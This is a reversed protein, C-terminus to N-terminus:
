EAKIQMLERIIEAQRIFKPDIRDGKKVKRLGDMLVTDKDTLGETVEYLHPMENDISIQRADITGNKVVFVFKKDLVEFTAKQPILLVNPLHLPMLIKGTQGHRLIAKPNQFTARFSINGTENNFDSEITEIIGASEYLGGDALELQVKEKEKRLDHKRIFGLYFAEPVNFYVWMKSNDSLTTLLAGEELLSGQRVENFRGVIGDFPAKIQTFQLHADALMLEAKAKDLNAKALALENKSVINSDALTKTNQYEIEVRSLEAQAKQKEALYVIPLLQFLLQGKRVFQGEDVYIKQLYGEDLARIELHQHARIQAIYEKNITTDQSIPLSVAYTATETHHEQEHACSVVFLTALCVLSFSIKM